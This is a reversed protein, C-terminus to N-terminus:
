LTKAIIIVAALELFAMIGLVLVAADRLIRFNHSDLDEVLQDVNVANRDDIAPDYLRSGTNITM